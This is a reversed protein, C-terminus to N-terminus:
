VRSSPSHQQLVIHGSRYCPNPDTDDATTEGNLKVIHRNGIAIIEFKTWDGDRISLERIRHLTRDTDIIIGGMRTADYKANYGAVWQKQGLTPGFPARYMMGTNGGNGRVEMRFHFDRYDDRESYLHSLGPGCSLMGETVKWTGPQSEHTKWGSLDKGNFFLSTFGEDAPKLEKIQINRFQIEGRLQQFGIRGSNRKLGQSLGGKAIM